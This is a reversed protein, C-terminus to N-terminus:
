ATETARVKTPMWNTDWDGRTSERLSEYVRSEVGNIRPYSNTAGGHEEKIAITIEVTYTISRAPRGAESRWIGKCLCADQQEDSESYWTHQGHPTANACDQFITM